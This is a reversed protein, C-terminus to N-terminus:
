LKNVETIEIEEGKEILAIEITGKLTKKECVMYGIFDDQKLTNSKLFQWSKYM